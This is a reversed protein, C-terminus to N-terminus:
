KLDSLSICKKCYDPYDFNLLKKRFDQIEKSNWCDPINNCTVLENYEWACCPTAYGRSNIYLTEFPQFCFGKWGHLLTKDIDTWLNKQKCFLKMQKVFNRNVFTDKVRHFGGNWESLNQVHIGIANIDTAFNIMDPFSNKTEQSLVTNIIIPIKCDKINKRIVDLSFGRIKKYVDPYPSDVSIHIDNIGTEFLKDSVTKTLITGNTTISIHRKGNYANKLLLCLRDIPYLLLEGSSCIIFNTNSPLSKVIGLGIHINLDYEEINKIKQRQCWVCKLNCSRNVSLIVNQPPYYCFTSTHKKLIKREIYKIYKIKNM